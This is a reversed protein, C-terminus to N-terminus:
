GCTEICFIRNGEGSSVLTDASALRRKLEDFATQQEKDWQFPACKKLLQRLPESVTALDPIFRASYQVLGMFSRVESVSKPERAEIVAKVKM